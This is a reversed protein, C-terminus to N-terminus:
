IVVYFSPPKAKEARRQGLSGVPKRLNLITTQTIGMQEGTTSKFVPGFDSVVGAAVYVQM